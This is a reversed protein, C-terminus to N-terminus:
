IIKTFNRKVGYLYKKILSLEQDRFGGLLFMVSLYVFLGVIATEFLEITNSLEFRSIFLYMAVSSMISKAIDPFYFKHKFYKLSMQTCLVAMLIYSVLTSLAAGIIGIYPILLLNILINSVAAAGNIYTQAKTKKVILLTNIFIQVIGAMLSSLAIVPVVLWGSAFDTTTFIGLLPKALASLGFVAPISIFLFYRLSLSMYIIVKDTKNEDYLKSIEPLLILQLPSVFLQVLGGISCAASYIGVSKLGLFYTVLYRDSSETVWRILTNPTLPLSFQLYERIYTFQPIVFGIQSRITVLSILVIFSQVLLTAAIVGFLGFGMKLLIYILIFKSFTEILTLSSYKQIQRFVRFYFLSVPEIVNLLILLSGARIFYTAGSDKFGMTALPEALIYLLLSALLGSVTVFFLISYVAERIIKKDTESSLFRVLGMSLGMLAFPTILSVTINIQAWLGYYYTGLSKTIIPLLFFSILSTLAQVAGIFGVDKAFKQYSM